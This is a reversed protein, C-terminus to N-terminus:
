AAQEWYANRVGELRRFHRILHYQSMANLKGDYIFLRFERTRNMRRFPKLCIYQARGAQASERVKPSLALYKWVSEPSYVAGRKLEFRETDTPACDDVCAFANGPIAELPQRLDEIIAKVAPSKAEQGTEGASLEAIVEPRMKVFSTLFTHGALVPYWNPMRLFDNANNM